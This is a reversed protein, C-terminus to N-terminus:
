TSVDEGKSVVLDLNRIHEPDTILDIQVIKGGTITFIFVVRARGSGVRSGRSWEGAGAARGPCLWQFHGGRGEHRPSGRIRGYTRSRQRSPAGRGAWCRWFLTSTAAARPPSSPAWSKGGAPSIPTTFLPRAGYGGARAAPSSGQRPRPADWSPLSRLARRVHRAARVRDARGSGANPTGRAACSRGLRRAASRTCPRGRGHERDSGARACGPAGRATVQTCAAYGPLDPRRSDDANRGSEPSREPRLPQAAALIGASRRGSRQALRADPLGRGESTRNEEFRKALWDQGNM